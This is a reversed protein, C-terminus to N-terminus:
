GYVEELSRSFKEVYLVALNASVFTSPRYTPLRRSFSPNAIVSTFRPFPSVPLDPSHFRRYPTENCRSVGIGVFCNQGSASHVPMVLMLMPVRATWDSHDLLSVARHGNHLDQETRETRRYYIPAKRSRQDFRARELALM